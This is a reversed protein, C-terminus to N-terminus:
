RPLKRTPEMRKNAPGKRARWRRLSAPSETSPQGLLLAEVEIDEDLAPWHIGLGGGLLIWRRREAPTGGALRPFWSLPVSVVRDDQLEVVLHDATVRVQRALASEVALASSAM